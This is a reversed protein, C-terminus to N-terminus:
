MVTPVIKKVLGMSRDMQSLGGGEGGVQAASPNEAPLSGRKSNTKAKSNTRSAWGDAASGPLKADEGDLSADAM